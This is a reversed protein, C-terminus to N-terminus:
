RSSSKRPPIRAAIAPNARRHRPRPRLYSDGRRHLLQYIGALSRLVGFETALIRQIDVGRLSCVQDEPTPGAEIRQCVQAAQEPALAPKAEQGRRDSLGALGLENYRSVWRQCIRRSLGVSMAIAPATYGNVALIVIRL